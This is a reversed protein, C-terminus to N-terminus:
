RRLDCNRSHGFKGIKSRKEKNLTGLESLNYRYSVCKRTNGKTLEVSLQMSRRNRPELFLYIKLSGLNFVLFGEEVKQVARLLCKSGVEGLGLLHQVEELVTFRNVTIREFRSFWALCSSEKM